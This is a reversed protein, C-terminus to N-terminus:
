LARTYELELGDDNVIRLTAADVSWTGDLEEDWIDAEELAVETPLRDLSPDICGHIEASISMWEADLQQAGVERWRGRLRYDATCGSGADTGVFYGSLSGDVNMWFMEDLRVERGEAFEFDSVVSEGIWRAVLPSEVRTYTVAIADGEITLRDGDITWVGELEDDWLDGEDQVVETEPADFAPDLCGDIRPRSSTWEADLRDSGVTEFRGTLRYTIVCRTEDDMGAFDGRLTGDALLEFMEELRVGRGPAFAFDEVFTHGAWRGVLEARGGGADPACGLAVTILGLSFLSRANM